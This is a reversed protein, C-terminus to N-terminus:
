CNEKTHTESVNAINYYHKPLNLMLCYFTLDYIYKKQVNKWEQEREYM